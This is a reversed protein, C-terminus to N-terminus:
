YSVQFRKSMPLWRNRNKLLMVLDGVIDRQLALLKCKDVDGGLTGGLFAAPVNM